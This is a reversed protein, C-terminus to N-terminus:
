RPARCSCAERRVPRAGALGLLLASLFARSFAMHAATRTSTAQPALPSPAHMVFRPALARRGVALRAQDPPQTRDRRMLPVACLPSRLLQPWWLPTSEVLMTWHANQVVIRATERQEGGVIYRCCAACANGPDEYGVPQM